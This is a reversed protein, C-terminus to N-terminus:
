TTSPEDKRALADRVVTRTCKLKNGEHYLDPAAALYNRQALWSAQRRLDASMGFRDHIVVM